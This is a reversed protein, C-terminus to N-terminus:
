LNYPLRFCAERNVLKARGFFRHAKTCYLRHEDRRRNKWEGKLLDGGCGCKMGISAFRRISVSLDFVMPM